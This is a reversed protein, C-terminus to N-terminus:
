CDFSYPYSQYNSDSNLNQNKFKNIKEVQDQEDPEDPEDPEDSELYSHNSIIKFM